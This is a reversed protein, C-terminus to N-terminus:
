LSYKLYPNDPNDDENYEYKTTYQNIRNAKIKLCETRAELDLKVKAIKENGTLVNRLVAYNWLKIGHTKDVSLVHLIKGQIRQVNKLYDISKRDNMQATKHILSRVQNRYNRSVCLHTSSNIVNIGTVFIGNKASMVVTKKHNMRLGFTKALSTIIPIMKHVIGAKGVALVLDDAFRTYCFKVGYKAHIKKTLIALLYNDFVNFAINQM